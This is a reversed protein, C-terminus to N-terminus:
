QYSPYIDTTYKDSKPAGWNDVYIGRFVFIALVPVTVLKIFVTIELFLGPTEAIRGFITIWVALFNLITYYLYRRHVGTLGSILLCLSNVGYLLLLPDIIDPNISFDPNVLIGIIFGWQFFLRIVFWGIIGMGAIKYRRSADHEDPTFRLLGIAFIMFGILDLTFVTLLMFLLQNVGGLGNNLLGFVVVIDLLVIM